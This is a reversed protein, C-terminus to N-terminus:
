NVQARIWFYRSAGSALTGALDADVDNGTNGFSWGAADGSASVYTLQAPLLDDVHVSAAAASGSNTVTIRYQLYEGPVVTGAGILTSQDDRYVQKTIALAPLVVTLDAFGDDLTAPSAVSRARLYLTDTSGAVVNAVSYVVAITQTAGAGLNTIRTSDGAVGNVSVITIVASGPSSALLDFDEPGNGGNEVTFTFSFNTGNSPLQQLAQGGDPTVAVAYTEGPTVTTADADSTAPTRRSAATLTFVTAVGGQGSAVDYVVEITITAGQAIATGALATNLAGLTAYTTSNFRYGTVAIVGPVSITESITVSDVGNGANQVTFTLTDASSPSAPNATAAAATVDVGAAFGVTVNVSGSVPTYPNGNADTWTVTATNTIVTGEPTQAGLPASASLVVAGILAGVRMLLRTSTPNM